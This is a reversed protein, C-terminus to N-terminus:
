TRNGTGFASPTSKYERQMQYLYHAILFRHLIGTFKGVQDTPADQGSCRLHPALINLTRNGTGFSLPAFASKEYPHKCTRTPVPTRSQGNVCFNLICFAFLYGRCFTQRPKTM